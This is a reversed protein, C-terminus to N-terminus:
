PGGAHVLGGPAAAVSGDSNTHNYTVGGRLLNQQVRAFTRWLDNGIDASRHPPSIQIPKCAL